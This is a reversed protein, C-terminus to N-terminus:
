LEHAHRLEREGESLSAIFSERAFIRKMYNKMAKPQPTLTIMLSPLRWLIPALYCDLLSFEESLFYPTEAFAPAFLLINEKFETRVADKDGDGQAIRKILPHLDQEIRYIMLRHKARVIPYVPLLPPHPFREDLYEAAIASNYLVLDRDVLAPLLRHPNLQMLDEPLNDAVVEVIDATLGKEALIIRLMHSNLSLAESYLTMVSRRVTM